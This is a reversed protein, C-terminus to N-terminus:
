SLESAPSGLRSQRAGRPKLRVIILRSLLLGILIFGYLAPESIDKKVLWLFHLVGLAAVLYVLRHLQQWRRGLRRIWGRTSTLALPILLVWGLFGVLVWPHEMVDEAVLAPSLSQDFVFYTLAHLTAYFFAFLGLPRRLRIADNWGTLRRVPTVALTVFLIILASLGTRHQIDRVAEAELQGTVTDYILIVFPLLCAIWLVGKLGIVVPSSRRRWPGDSRRVTPGDM